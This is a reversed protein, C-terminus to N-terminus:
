KKVIMNASTVGAAVKVPQTTPKAEESWTKLTYTGAPVNKIVFNGEKDTIAFYPTAVVVIYGSMEPHVNCLLPVDGLNTFTFSKKQGQPCTGMNHALKRNHNIAPWYINHGVPDENTFDVTTGQQVAIVHPAFALHVQDMVAHQAPAPFTKGPISDMYVAINIPSRMGQATVKGKIDGGWALSSLTLVGVFATALLTSRKTNNMFENGKLHNPTM